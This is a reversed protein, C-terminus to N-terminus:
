SSCTSSAPCCTAFQNAYIYRFLLVFMIPQVLESYFVTPVRTPTVLNVEGGASRRRVRPGRARRASPARRDTPTQVIASM